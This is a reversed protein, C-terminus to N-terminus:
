REDAVALAPSSGSPRIETHRIQGGLNATWALVATTIILVIATTGLFRTPLVPNRRLLFLGILGLVGLGEVGVLAGAAWTEHQEILAESVGALHEIAEEAPEGSLYVPVALLAM